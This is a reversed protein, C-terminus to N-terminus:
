GIMTVSFFLVMIGISPVLSVEHVCIRRDKDLSGGGAAWIMDLHEASLAKQRCLFGM